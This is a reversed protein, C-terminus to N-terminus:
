RGLAHFGHPGIAPVAFITIADIRFRSRHSLHDVLTSVALTSIIFAMYEVQGEGPRIDLTEFWIELGTRSNKSKLTTVCPHRYFRFSSHHIKGISTIM